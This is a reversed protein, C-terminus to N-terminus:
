YPAGEVKIEEFIEPGLVIPGTYAPMTIPDVAGPDTSVSIHPTYDEYDWTGDTRDLISCHRWALDTSAFALVLYKGFQENVRPGGAKVTLTGDESNGWSDEGVKLWDVPQKSYCITVHMEAGYVNSVGLKKYHQAIDKYNMVDRRIYLTRPTSADILQADRIRTAMSEIAQDSSAVKKGPVQKKKFPLVKGDPGTKSAPDANAPSGVKAGPVAVPAPANPDPIARAMAEPDNPDPPQGTTPDIMPTAAAGERTNVDTGFEEIIQEIGPYFSSEILQSERAKQLVMPDMLAATVDATMVTSQKVAIDAKEAETMQWLPNWNYFMGEPAKGFASIQLITDLPHMLPQIEVRQETAVRDYYNRTDSEGTASLGKPAQGLFRTAPIDAAGCVLEMFEQLVEPM